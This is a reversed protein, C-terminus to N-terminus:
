KEVTGRVVRGAPFQSVVPTAVGGACDLGGSRKRREARSWTAQFKACAARIEEPSPEYAGREAFCRYCIELRRNLRARRGCAPCTGIAITTAFGNAPTM